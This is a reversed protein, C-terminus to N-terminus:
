RGTRRTLPASGSATRLLCAKLDPQAIELPREIQQQLQDERVTEVDGLHRQVLHGVFEDGVGLRDARLQFEVLGRGEQHDGGRQQIELRGPQQRGPLDVVLFVERQELHAVQQEGPQQLVPRELVDRLHEGFELGGRQAAIRPRHRQLVPVGVQQGLHHETDVGLPERLDRRGRERRPRYRHHGGLM